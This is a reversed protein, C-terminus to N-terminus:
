SLSRCVTGGGKGGAGLFILPYCHGKTSLCDSICDSISKCVTWVIWPHPLLSPLLLERTLQPKLFCDYARLQSSFSFKNRSALNIHMNVLVCGVSCMCSWLFAIKWWTSGSGKVKDVCYWSLNQKRLHSLSIKNSHIWQPETNGMTM